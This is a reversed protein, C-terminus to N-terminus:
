RGPLSGRLLGLRVLQRLTEWVDDRIGDASVPHEGELQEVIESFTATGDCRDWIASASPNLVFLSHGVDDYIGVSGQLPVTSANPRPIPVSDADPWWRPLADAHRETTEGQATM